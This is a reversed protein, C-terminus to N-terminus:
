VKRTKVFPTVKPITNHYLFKYRVINLGLGPLNHDHISVNKDTFILDAYTSEHSTKGIAKAWWSLSTGWGEWTYRQNSPQLDQASSSDSSLETHGKKQTHCGAITLTSLTLTFVQFSLLKLM